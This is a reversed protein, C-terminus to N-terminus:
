SSCTPVSLRYVNHIGKNVVSAVFIILVSKLTGLERGVGCGSRTEGKFRGLNISIDDRGVYVLNIACKSDRNCYQATM